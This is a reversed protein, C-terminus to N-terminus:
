VEIELSTITDLEKEFITSIGHNLKIGGYLNGLSDFYLEPTKLEFGDISVSKVNSIFFENNEYASLKLYGFELLYNYLSNTSCFEKVSFEMNKITVKVFVKM